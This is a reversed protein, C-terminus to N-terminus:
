GGVVQISDDRYVLCAELDLFTVAITGDDGPGCGVSLMPGYRLTANEPSYFIYADATNCGKSFGSAAAVGSIGLALTPAFLATITALRMTSPKLISAIPKHSLKPHQKSDKLPHEKM